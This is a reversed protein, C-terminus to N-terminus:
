NFSISSTFSEVEWDKPLANRYTDFYRQEMLPELELLVCSLINQVSSCFEQRVRYAEPELANIQRIRKAREEFEPHTDFSNNCYIKSKFKRFTELSGLLLVGGAGTWLYPNTYKYGQAIKYADTGEVRECLKAAFSDAEFEERKAQESGTLQRGHGRCHHGLEHALAFIEMSFVTQEMLLLEHRRSPKFPVLMHTGTLAYSTFIQWWYLLLEPNQRLQLRVLDHKFVTGNVGLTKLSTRVYARAILACYRTFHAGMTIVTEDTLPVNVTSVFPGAKPEVAFHATEATKRDKDSLGALLVVRARELLLESHRAVGPSTIPATEQRLQECQEMERFEDKTWGAEVFAKEARERDASPDCDPEIFTSWEHSQARELLQEWLHVAAAKEM